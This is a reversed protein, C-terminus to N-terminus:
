FFNVSSRLGHKRAGVLWDLAVYKENEDKFKFSPEKDDSISIFQYFVISWFFILLFFYVLSLIVDYPM